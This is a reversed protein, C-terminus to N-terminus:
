KKNELTNFQNPLTNNNINIPNQPLKSYAAVRADLELRANNVIVIGIEKIGKSRKLEEKLQNSELDADALRNLQDFLINNLDGLTNNEM